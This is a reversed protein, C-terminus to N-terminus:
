TELVQHFFLWRKTGCKSASFIFNYQYSYVFSNSPMLLCCPLHKKTQIFNKFILKLVSTGKTHPITGCMCSRRIHMALHEVRTDVQRVMIYKTSPVQNIDEQISGSSNLSSTGSPPRKLLFKILYYRKLNKQGM